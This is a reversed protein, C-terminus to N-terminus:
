GAKLKMFLNVKSGFVIVRHRRAALDILGSSDFDEIMSGNGHLLVLPPGEGREIYHLHVGDVDIFQGSPPNRREARKALHHNALASLALVGVVAAVATAYPRATALGRRGAAVTSRGAVFATPINKTM